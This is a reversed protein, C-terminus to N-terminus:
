KNWEFGANELLQIEAKSLRYNVIGGKGKIAKYSWRM